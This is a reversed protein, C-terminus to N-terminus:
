SVPNNSVLYTGSTPKLDMPIWSTARAPKDITNGTIVFSERTTGAAPDTPSVYIAVISTSAITNNTWRSTGAIPDYQFWAIGIEGDSIQNGNVVSNRYRVSVGDNNFHAILNDIVSSNTSKLYIGHDGYTIKPDLGTNTISNHEVDFHDGRLLMGSDGTRDIRNDRIVWNNGIANIAIEAGDTAGPVMGGITCGEVTINDARGTVGQEPGMGLNEFVLNSNGNMWAGQPLSAQGSGYSGFVIPQSSTGSMPAGWGPMLVDDDFTAGGQFLIGDGPRFTAEDVRHVTKWAQAPSTGANSDSGSPSVYYTTGTIPAPAFSTAGASSTSATSLTYSPIPFRSAIKAHKKTRHHHRHHKRRHHHRRHYRRHHKHHPKHALAVPAAALGLILILAALCTTLKTPM